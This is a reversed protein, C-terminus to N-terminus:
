DILILILEGKLILHYKSKNLCIAYSLPKIFLCFGFTDCFIIFVTLIKM